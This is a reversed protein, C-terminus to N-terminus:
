YCDTTAEDVPNGSFTTKCHTPVVPMPPMLYAPLPEGPHANQWEAAARGLNRGAISSNVIGWIQRCNFGQTRAAIADIEAYTFGNELLATTMARGQEESLVIVNNSPAVTV